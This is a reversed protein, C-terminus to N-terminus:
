YLRFSLFVFIVNCDNCVNCGWVDSITKNPQTKLQSPKTNVRKGYREIEDGREEKRNEGRWKGKRGEREGKGTETRYRKRGYREEM